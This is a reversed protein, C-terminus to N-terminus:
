GSGAEADAAARAPRPRLRVAVAIVVALLVLVLAGGVGLLVWVVPSVATSSGATGSGGAATAAGGGCAPGSASGAAPATGPARHFTFTFTDSVPHGDASVVRWTVTYRGSAGLTVAASVTRGDVRPCATESHRTSADPGTVILV